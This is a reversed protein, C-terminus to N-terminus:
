ITEGYFESYWKVFEGIGDALKTDAKHGFDEMLGGNSLKSHYIKFKLNNQV